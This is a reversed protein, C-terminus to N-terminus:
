MIGCCEGTSVYCHHVHAGPEDCGHHGVQLGAFIIGAQATVPTDNLIGMCFAYLGTRSQTGDGTQSYGSCTISGIRGPIENFPDATFFACCNHSGATVERCHHSIFYYVHDGTQFSEGGIFGALLSQGYGVQVQFNGVSGIYRLDVGSQIGIM